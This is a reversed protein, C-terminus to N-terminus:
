RITVILLDEIKLPVYVEPKTIEMKPILDFGSLALITWINRAKDLDLLYTEELFTPLTSVKPKNFYYLEVIIRSDHEPFEPSMFSIQFKVEADEAEADKLLINYGASLIHGFNITKYSAHDMFIRHIMEHLDKDM